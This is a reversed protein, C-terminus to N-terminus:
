PKSPADEMYKLLQALTIQGRIYFPLTPEDISKIEEYCYVFRALSIDEVDKSALARQYLVKCLAKGTSNRESGQFARFASYVEDARNPYHFALVGTVLPVTIQDSM